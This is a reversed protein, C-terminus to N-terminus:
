PIVIKEDDPLMVRPDTEVVRRALRFYTEDDVKALEPAFRAHEFFQLASRTVVFCHLTYPPRPRIWRAVWNGEADYFRIKELANPFSFTDKEFVFQRTPSFKGPPATACGALVMGAMAILLGARRPLAAGINGVTMRLGM